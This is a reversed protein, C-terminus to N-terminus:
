SVETNIHALTAERGQVYAWYLVASKTKRNMEIWPRDLFERVFREVHMPTKFNIFAYGRNTMKASDVPLYLLDYCNKEGLVQDIERRLSNLTYRPTYTPNPSLPWVYKRPVKKVM